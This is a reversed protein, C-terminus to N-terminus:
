SQRRQAALRKATVIMGPGQSRGQYTRGDDLMVSVQCMDYYDGGRTPTRWTKEITYHGIPKGEWTTVPGCRGMRESILLTRHNWNVTHAPIRVQGTGLYAVLRDDTVHAGGSAFPTGNHIVTGTEAFTQGVAVAGISATKFTTSM